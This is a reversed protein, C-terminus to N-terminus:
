MIEMPHELNKSSLLKKFTEIIRKRKKKYLFNDSIFYEYVKEFTKLEQPNINKGFLINCFEKPKSTVIKKTDWLEIPHKLIGNRGSFTYTQINLGDESEFVYKNFYKVNHKNDFYELIDHKIHISISEFLCERYKSPYKNSDKNYPLNERVWKIWSMNDTLKLILEVYGNQKNGNIPWNTIIKKKDKILKTNYGFRKIQEQLFSLAYEDKLSDNNKLLMNVDIALNINHSTSYRNPNFGASGIFSINNDDLRLIPLLNDKINQITKPVSLQKIGITYNLNENLYEDYSIIYNVNHINNKRLIDM